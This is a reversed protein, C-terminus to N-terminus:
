LMLRLLAARSPVGMKNLLSAEWARVRRLSVGLDRAVQHAPVGRSVRELLDRERASLHACRAVEGLQLEQVRRLEEVTATHLVFRAPDSSADALLVEYAGSGGGRRRVATRPWARGSPRFIPCDACPGPRGHLLSYCRPADDGWYHWTGTATEVRVLAGFRTILSRVEYAVLDRAEPRPLADFAARVVIITALDSGEGVTMFETHLTVTRGDPTALAMRKEPSVEHGLGDWGVLRRIIESALVVRRQRDLVVSPPGREALAGVLSEWDM